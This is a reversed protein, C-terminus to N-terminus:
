ARRRKHQIVVEYSGRGPRYVTRATDSGFVREREAQIAEAKQRRWDEVENALPPEEIIRAPNVISQVIQDALRLAAAATECHMTKICTWGDTPQLRYMALYHGDRALVNTQPNHTM